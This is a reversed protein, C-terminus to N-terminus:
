VSCGRKGVSAQVAASTQPPICALALQRAEELECILSDVSVENRKAAKGQLEALRERVESNRLIQNAGVEAAHGRSGYGAQRYSETASLGKAIGQAFRERRNNSLPSMAALYALFFAHAIPNAM